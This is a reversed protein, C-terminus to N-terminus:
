LECGYTGKVAQKIAHSVSMNSHYKALIDRMYAIKLATTRINFQIQKDKPLQKKQM